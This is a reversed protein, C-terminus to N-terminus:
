VEFVSSFPCLSLFFSVQRTLTEDQAWTLDSSIVCCTKDGLGRGAAAKSFLWCEEPADLLIGTVPSGEQEQSADPERGPEQLTEPLSRPQLAAPVSAEQPTLRRAPIRRGEAQWGQTCVNSGPRRCWGGGAQEERVRLPCTVASSEADTLLLHLLHLLHRPGLSWRIGQQGGAGSSLAPGEAQRPHESREPAAATM